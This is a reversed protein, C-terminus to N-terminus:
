CLKTICCNIDPYEAAVGTNVIHLLTPSQCCNNGNDEQVQVLTSFGLSANSGSACTTSSEAQPQAIGNKYLQLSVVGDTSAVCAANCTVSYIGCRNIQITSPASLVATCGKKISINNFPIVANEDVTVNNSYVEIM